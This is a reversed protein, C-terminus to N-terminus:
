PLIEKGILQELAAVGKAFDTLARAYETEYMFLASQSDIVSLFEVRGVQYSATASKLTARTQPVLAHAYLALQTRLRELESVIRAVEARIANVRAAHEAHLAALEADAEVIAQGQRQGRYVPVPITVGASVMGPLGGTRFGYRLSLDFDPLAGKGALELREAQASIMAEHARLEPNGALAEGQLTALPPLSSGEARAGLTSSAFRIPAGPPGVAAQTLAAPIFASDVPTDSARDLVANLRALATRRAEVFASAAEALRPAEARAKLVDQQEGRGVGYRAETVGILTSLLDANRRAIALAQDAFALDYWADKVDRIVQRAAAAAMADAARRGAETVRLQLGLKGPYPVTQGIGIAYMTMPEPGSPGTAVGHASVTQPSSGLPLNDVGVMIRPDPRLGAPGIRARAADVRARAAKLTPNNAIALRVTSDLSATATTIRGRGREVPGTPEPGQSLADRALVATVAIIYIISGLYRM